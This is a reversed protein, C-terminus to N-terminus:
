QNELNLNGNEYDLLIKKANEFDDKKVKLISTNMGGSSVAWPQLNSLHENATFVEISANQLLNKVSIAEIFTGSFIEIM